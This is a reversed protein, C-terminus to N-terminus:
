LGDLKTKFRIFCFQVFSQFCAFKRDAVVKERFCCHVVQSLCVASCVCVGWRDGSSVCLSNKKTTKKRPLSVWCIIMEPVRCAVGLGGTGEAAGGGVMQEPPQTTQKWPSAAGRRVAFM